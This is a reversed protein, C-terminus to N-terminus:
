RGPGKEITRILLGTPSAMVRFEGASNANIFPASVSEADLFPAAMWFRQRLDFMNLPKEYSLSYVPHVKEKKDDQSTHRGTVQDLEYSTQPGFLNVLPKWRLIHAQIHLQDGALSFVKEHGDPTLVRAIFKQEGAPEVKVTAALEEGTVARYGQMAITVTVFLASLAALLLSAAFIAATTSRRRKRIGFLAIILLVLGILVLLASSIVLPHSLLM